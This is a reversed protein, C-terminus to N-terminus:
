IIVIMARCDNCSKEIEKRHKEAMEISEFPGSRVIYYNKINHTESRLQMKPVDTSLKKYLGQANQLVEFVGVQVYFAKTYDKVFSTKGINRADAFEQNIDIETQLVSPKLNTDIKYRQLYEDINVDENNKLKNSLEPLYEIEVRARGQEVFGLDEAVQKSVDVVREETNSFPGRDSVIGLTQKGNELNRVVVASPMPLTKHAVMRLNSRFTAGNATPKGDFDKGYWSAVGQQKLSTVAEPTHTTQEIQYPTGVKYAGYDHALIASSKCVFVLFLLVKLREM